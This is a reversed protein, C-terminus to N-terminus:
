TEGDFNGSDLSNSLSTDAGYRKTKDTDSRHVTANKTTPPQFHIRRFQAVDCGPDTELHKRYQSCFAEWYENWRQAAEWYETKLASDRRMQAHYRSKSERKTEDPYRTEWDKVKDLTMLGYTKGRIKKASKSFDAVMEEQTRWGRAAKGHAKGKDTRPPKAVIVITTPKNAAPTQTTDAKKTGDEAIGALLGRVSAAVNALKAKYASETRDGNVMEGHAAKLGSLLQRLTTEMDNDLADQAVEIARAFPERIKAADPDLDIINGIIRRRDKWAGSTQLGSVADLSEALGTFADTVDKVNYRIAM